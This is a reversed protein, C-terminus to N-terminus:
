QWQNEKIILTRAEDGLIHDTRYTKKRMQKGRTQQTRMQPNPSKNHNRYRTRQGPHWQPEISGKTQLNLHLRVFSLDKLEQRLENQWGAFVIKLLFYSTRKKKKTMLIFPYKLVWSMWPRKLVFKLPLENKNKRKTIWFSTKRKRQKQATVDAETWKGPFHSRCPSSSHCRCCRERPWLLRPEAQSIEVPHCWERYHILSPQQPM